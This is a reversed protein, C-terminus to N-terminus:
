TEIDDPTLGVALRIKAPTSSEFAPLRLLRLPVGLIATTEREPLRETTGDLDVVLHLETEPQSRVRVIGIGRVEMKDRIAKPARAVIGNGVLFLATRDDAVLAAGRDILRLALDSKGCGTPGRLLVGSTGIAVATGHVTKM